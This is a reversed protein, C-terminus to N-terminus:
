TVLLKAVKLPKNLVIKAFKGKDKETLANVSIYVALMLGNGAPLKKNLTLLLLM